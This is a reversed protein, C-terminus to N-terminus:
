RNGVLRAVTVILERDSGCEDWIARNNDKFSQWDQEQAELRAVNANLKAAIHDPKPTGKSM